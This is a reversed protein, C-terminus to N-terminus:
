LKRVPRIEKWVRTPDHFFYGLRGPTDDFCCGTGEYVFEAMPREIKEEVGANERNYDFPGHEFVIDEAEPADILLMQPPADGKYDAPLRVGYCEVRPTGYCFPKGTLDNLYAMIQGGNSESEEGVDLKGKVSDLLGCITDCDQGPFQWLDWEGNSEYNRIHLFKHAPITIFYVKVQRSSKVM